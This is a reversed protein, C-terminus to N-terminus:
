GNQRVSDCVTSLNQLATDLLSLEAKCPELHKTAKEAAKKLAKDRDSEKAIAKALLDVDRKLDKDRFKIRKLAKVLKDLGEAKSNSRITKRLTNCDRNDIRGCQAVIYRVERSIADPDPKPLKQAERLVELLKSAEKSTKSAQSSVERLKVVFQDKDKSAQSLQSQAIQAKKNVEDVYRMALEATSISTDLDSKGVLTSAIVNARSTSGILEKCIQTKRGSENSDRKLISCGILSLPCIAGLLWLGVRSFHTKIM